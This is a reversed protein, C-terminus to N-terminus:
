FNTSSTENAKMKMKVQCGVLEEAHLSHMAARAKEGSPRGYGTPGYGGYITTGGMARRLVEHLDASYMGSSASSSSGSGNRFPNERFGDIIYIRGGAFLKQFGPDRAYWPSEEGSQPSAKRKQRAQERKLREEAEDVAEDSPLPPVAARDLLDDIEEQTDAQLIQALLFKHQRNGEQIKGIGCFNYLRDILQWQAAKTEAMDTAFYVQLSDGDFKLAVKGEEDLGNIPSDETPM